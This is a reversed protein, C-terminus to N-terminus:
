ASYVSAVFDVGVKDGINALTCSAKRTHHYVAVLGTHISGNGSLTLLIINFTKIIQV